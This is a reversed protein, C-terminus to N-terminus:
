SIAIGLHAHPTYFLGEKSPEFRTLKLGLVGLSSGIVLGGLLWGLREPHALGALLILALFVSYVGITLWLRGKYLRQRGVIRRIRSYLRWGILPIFILLVLTQPTPSNM